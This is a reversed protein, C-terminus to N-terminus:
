ELDWGFVVSLGTVTQEALRRYAGDCDSAPVVEALGTVDIRGDCLWALASTM